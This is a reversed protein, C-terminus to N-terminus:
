PVENIGRIRTAMDHATQEVPYFPPVVVFCCIFGKRLPVLEALFKLPHERRM